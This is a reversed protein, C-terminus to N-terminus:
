GMSLLRTPESIHILSLCLATQWDWLESSQFAGVGQATVGIVDMFDDRFVQEVTHPNINHPREFLAPFQHVFPHLISHFAPCISMTSPTLSSVRVNLTHSPSRVQVLRDRICMESGVLSRLM